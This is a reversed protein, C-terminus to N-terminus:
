GLPYDCSSVAYHGLLFDLFLLSSGRTVELTVSIVSATVLEKGLKESEEVARSREQVTYKRETGRSLQSVCSQWSRDAFNDAFGYAFGPGM